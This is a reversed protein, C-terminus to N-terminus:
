RFLNRNKLLLDSRDVDPDLRASSKKRNNQTHQDGHQQPSVLSWAHFRLSLQHSHRALLGKIGALVVVQNPDAHFRIRDTASEMWLVDHRIDDIAGDTKGSPRKIVLKGVCNLKVCGSDRKSFKPRACWKHLKLRQERPYPIAKRSDPNM